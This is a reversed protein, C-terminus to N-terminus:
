KSSTINKQSLGSKIFRKGLESITTDLKKARAKLKDKLAPGTEVTVWDRKANAPM